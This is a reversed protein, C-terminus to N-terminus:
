TDGCKAQNAIILHSKERASTIYLGAKLGSARTQPLLSWSPSFWQLLGQGPSPLSGWWFAFAALLYQQLVGVREGKWLRLMNQQKKEGWFILRICIEWMSSRPLIPLGLESNTTYHRCCLLWPAKVTQEDSTQVSYSSNLSIKLSRKIQNGGQQQQRFSLFGYM